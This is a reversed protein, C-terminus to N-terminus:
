LIIRFAEFTKLLLGNTKNEETDLADIYIGMEKKIIEPIPGIEKIYSDDNCLLNFTVDEIKIDYTQIETPTFELMETFTAVAFRLELKCPLRRVYRSLDYRQALTLNLTTM